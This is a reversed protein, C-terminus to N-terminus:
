WDDDDTVLTTKPWENKMVRHYAVAGVALHVCLSTALGALMLVVGPVGAAISIAAGILILATSVIDASRWLREM